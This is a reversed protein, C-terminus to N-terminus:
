DEYDGAGSPSEPLPLHRSALRVEVLFLVLAAMMTLMAVILLVALILAAALEFFVGAFSVVILTCLTIAAVVCGSIAYHVARARRALLVREGILAPSRGERIARERDILRGLRSVMVNLVSFIGTLLFAPAIALQIAREIETIDAAGFVTSSLPWM